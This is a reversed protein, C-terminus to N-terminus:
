VCPVLHGPFCGSSGGPERASEEGSPVPPDSPREPHRARRGRQARRQPPEPPSPARGPSSGFPQSPRLAIAGPQRARGSGRGRRAPASGDGPRRCPSSPLPTGDEPGEDAPLPSCDGTLARAAGSRM